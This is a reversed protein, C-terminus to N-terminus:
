RPPVWWLRVAEGSEDREIRYQLRLRAECEEVAAKLLGLAARTETHVAWLGATGEAAADAARQLHEVATWAAELATM